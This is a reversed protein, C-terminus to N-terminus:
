TPERKYLNVQAEKVKARVRLRERKNENLNRKRRSRKKKVADHKDKDLVELKMDYFKPPQMPRNRFIVQDHDYTQDSYRNYWETGIGPRRSMVGYEPVRDNMVLIGDLKKTVYRAVYAASEFTVSGFNAIGHPWLEDLTKSIYLREGSKSIGHQQADPFWHNFILTHYHPRRTAEGYEGCAFYRIGVGRSRLLRNHVRKHFDKLHSPVLSHNRHLHADSYTLTVFMNNEYLQSEHVCRM